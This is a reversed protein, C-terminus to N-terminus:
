LLVPVWRLLGVLFLFFLIYFANFFREPPARGFIRTVWHLIFGENSYGAEGAQFRLRREMATLPCPFDFVVEAVVLAMMLLHFIRLWAVQVWHWGLAPGILICPVMAVIFGVWAVHILLIFKARLM